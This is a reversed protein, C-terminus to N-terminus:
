THSPTQSIPTLQQLVEEIPEEEVGVIYLLPYRARLMLDIQQLLQQHPNNM